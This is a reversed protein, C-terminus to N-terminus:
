QAERAKIITDIRGIMTKVEDNNPDITLMAKLTLKTKYYDQEALSSRAATILQAKILSTNAKLPRPKLRPKPRVAPKAPQAAPQKKIAPLEEAPPNEEMEESIEQEIPKVGVLQKALTETEGQRSVKEQKLGILTVLTPEGIYFSTTMGEFIKGEVDTAILNAHYLGKKFGYPVEWYGHWIHARREFDFVIRSGDPLTATMEVVNSPAGVVLHVVDGPLYTRTGPALKETTGTAPSIIALILALCALSRIIM